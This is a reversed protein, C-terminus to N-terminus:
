VHPVFYFGCVVPQNSQLAVMHWPVALSCGCALAFSLSDVESVAAACDAVSMGNYLSLLDVDAAFLAQLAELNGKLAAYHAATRGDNSRKRVDAGRQLLLRLCDTNAEAALMLPTVNVYDGTDVECGADLVALLAETHGNNAAYHAVTKEETSRMQVDANCQLLLKLCGIHGEEAALMLPTLMWINTADVECGANILARLAETHGGMAAFLAVPPRNHVSAGRQLLLQLCGVHGHGAAYMLPTMTWTDATDIECGADLVALLVEVNGKRAAYHSSTRGEASRKRADAGRQLLLQVCETHGGDAACMLPTVGLHDCKDVDCGAAVMALLAEKNGQKAADNMSIEFSGHNETSAQM